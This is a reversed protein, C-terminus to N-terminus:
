TVKYYEVKRSLRGKPWENRCVKIISEDNGMEYAAALVAKIINSATVVIQRVTHADVKYVIQWKYTKDEM